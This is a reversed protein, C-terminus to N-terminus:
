TAREAYLSNRDANFTSTTEKFAPLAAITELAASLKRRWNPYQDVTGPVNVPADEGTIDHLQARGVM